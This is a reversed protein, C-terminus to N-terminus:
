IQLPLSALVKSVKNQVVNPGDYAAVTSGYITIPLGDVFTSPFPSDSSLTIVTGAPNGKTAYLFLEPGVVKLNAVTQPFNYAPNSSVLAVIIGDVIRFDFPVASLVILNSGDQYIGVFNGVIPPIPDVVPGGTDADRV